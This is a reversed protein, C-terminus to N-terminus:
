APEARGSPQFADPTMVAFLGRRQLRGALVLLAADRTLLVEAGADRALELFKQDDPDACRPLAARAASVPGREFRQMRADYSAELALARAADIRLAPYRLVRLWEARCPDDTIAVILSRELANRLPAVRPDAFHWLELAVHTDLVVRRPVSV